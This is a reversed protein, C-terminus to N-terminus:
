SLLVGLSMNGFYGSVRGRGSGMAGGCVRSIRRGLRGSVKVSRVVVSKTGPGRAGFVLSAM